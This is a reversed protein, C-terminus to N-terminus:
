GLSPGLIERTMQFGIVGWLGIAEGIAGCFQSRISECIIVLNISLALGSQTYENHQVEM